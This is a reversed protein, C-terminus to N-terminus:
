SRKVPDFNSVGIVAGIIAVLVVGGAGISLLFNKLSPTVGDAAQAVEPIMMLTTLATATLGTAAKKGLSSSAKVQLRGNPRTVSSMARSPKVPLPKFLAESSPAARKQSARASPLVMSVASISAM